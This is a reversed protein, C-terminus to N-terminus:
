MDQAIIIINSAFNLIMVIHDSISYQIYLSEHICQMKSILKIADKSNIVKLQIWLTFYAYPYNNYLIILFSYNHCM